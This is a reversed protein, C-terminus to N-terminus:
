YLPHGYVEVECLNLAVAQSDQLIFVYQGTEDCHREEPVPIGELPRGRRSRMPSLPNAGSPDLALM